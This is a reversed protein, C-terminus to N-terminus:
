LVQLHQNILVQQATATHQWVNYFEGAQESAGTQRWGETQTLALQDDAGGDVKLLAAESLQPQSLVDSLSLKLTNAGTGNIDISAVKGHVATFSSFDLQMARGLLTLQTGESSTQATYALSSYEFSADSVLVRSGDTASATTRGAETVGATPMRVTNDSSLNISAIGLDLLGRMEGADAVGNQNADQWVKFEAFKADDACFVGDHNKDFGAALGQLDTSGAAGYQSFAYQSNDHVQGDGLKDWVLVGDQAAAWATQDLQGDGNVDMTVQAYSIIGDRNLDLVLPAVSDNNIVVVDANVLVQSNSGTNQYVTYNSSGNNVIGANAWLGLDPSLVLTDSSTGDVVLQHRQVSATLPTGSVNVWGNGTNFVNFGAMDKVDKATLTLTNAATDTGMDIREISNIRSSGDPGMAGINSVATLDFSAGGSLQVTDYGTGGDVRALQATNGNAGMASQLATINSANLVLTDNGKGGYMVDAGGGGTLTDDGDGAAFTEAVTTGTQNNATADGLYDVTSAFREGGFVVYSKGADTGTATDAFRSGVLLDAFGDGNIDGAASVTGATDGASQGNIAFGGVGNAVASLNIAITGTQGYVVYSRGADAGALPDSNLAGVILDSLGDGNVDGASSVRTRSVVGSMSITGDGAMEGNIVFGSSGAAVASLDVATISTKGFVVYHRGADIGAAPDSLPAYVALDALGDGNVDGASSVTYGSYDSAFQGNIAFGNAGLASLQVTTQTDKGFVVYSRGAFSTSNRAGVIVDSLGDGNVDGANSVSFGAYDSTTAGNILFGDSGLATMAINANEAKGFVVYAAGADIGTTADFGPTGFILDAYGDGNVDGAASISAGMLSQGANPGTLVFGKTSGALLESAEVATNSTKGYVVYVRGGTSNDNVSAFMVDVLGDGNIDGASSLAAGLQFNLGNSIGNIAFGNTGLNSLEVAVTGARGFVVYGRGVSTTSGNDVNMASVLVDDYGDGNVDGANAVALGSADNGLHGNIVFGDAGAAVDGLNVGVSLNNKVASDVLIQSMSTTSNYVDYTKGSNSVTGAYSWTDTAVITDASTGDVVLQHRQVSATLPTGSTNTWGNATNYLNFGAMDKVDKATLTLTNAATDTGMDIREISNIRSSGDPSMASVNSIGTLDLSTGDLRITDAGTGGDIRALQTPGSALTSLASVNTANLVFVDSGKGGYMVDAGGNGTLVDDGDGAVFTEAAATGTLANATADGLYDVTTAFREGGFVVYSKGADLGAAPDAYRSGVLLDAFGDGNIDGAASVSLTNNGGDGASQGNIAFGGVGKTVASLNITTTGTQGYVVYNRGADTGALTDAAPASIILDALGDGNVDGAHSLRIRPTTYVVDITGDGASEGNIVYGGTGLASLEITPSSTKGFVVYTRGANIGTAPDSGPAFVAVDALGDGNVDGASSVIYGSYDSGAQGHIAFGLSSLANVDVTSSSTKGFVVYSRGADTGGPPDSQYAGVIVDSLGDGNVDGANSVMFGTADSVNMGNIAFGRAGLNSLEVSANVAKGFVM